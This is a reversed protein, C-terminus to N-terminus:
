GGCHLVVAKGELLAREPAAAERDAKFEILGRPINLSGPIRGTAAVENPERVDVVVAEGRDLMAKAEAAAIRPVAADAEAILGKLSARM